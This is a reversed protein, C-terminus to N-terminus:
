HYGHKCDRWVAVPHRVTIHSLTVVGTFKIYANQCTVASSTTRTLDTNVFNTNVGAPILTYQKQVSWLIEIRFM